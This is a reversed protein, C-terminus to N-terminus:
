GERQRSQIVGDNRMWEAGEASTCVRTAFPEEETEAEARLRDYAQKVEYPLWQRSLFQTLIQLDARTM